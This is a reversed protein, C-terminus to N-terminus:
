SYFCEKKRDLITTASLPVINGFVYWSERFGYYNVDDNYLDSLDKLLFNPIPITRYSSSTKHSTVTYPKSTKPDTVKVINKNVTFLVEILTYIM